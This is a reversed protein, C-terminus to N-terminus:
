RNLPPLIVRDGARLKRFNDIKNVRAVELYYAPNSYIKYCLGPLTDGEKVTIIHTLDPSSKNEEALREAINVVEVFTLKATAKLPIGKATFATYTFSIDKVQGKFSLEGWSLRVYNTRHIDGNFDVVLKKFDKLAKSVDFNKEDEAIFTNDFILDFSIEEPKSNRFKNESASAGVAQGEDFCINYKHDISSPNYRVAFEGVKDSNSFTDKKYATIKLKNEVKAM